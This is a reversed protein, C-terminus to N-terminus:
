LPKRGLVFLLLRRCARFLPYTLGARRRTGFCWLVIKDALGTGAHLKALAHAADAGTRCADCAVVAFGEELDIERGALARRQEPDARADVLALPAASDHMRLRHAFARCIPCGGDYLVRIETPRM